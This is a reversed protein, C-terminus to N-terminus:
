GQGDLGEVALQKLFGLLPGGAHGHQDLSVLGQGAIQFEIVEHFGDVAFEAPCEASGAQADGGAVM